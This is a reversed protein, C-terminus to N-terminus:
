AASHNAAVTVLKGGKFTTIFQEPVAMESSPEEGEGGTLTVNIESCKATV